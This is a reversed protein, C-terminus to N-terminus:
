FNVFFKVFVSLEHHVLTQGEKLEEAQTEEKSKYIADSIHKSKVFLKKFSYGSGSEEQAEKLERERKRSSQSELKHSIM